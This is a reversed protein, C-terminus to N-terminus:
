FIGIFGGQRGIGGRMYRYSFYKDPLCHTCEDSKWINNAPVGLGMAQLRNAESLDVHFKDGKSRFYAGEGTAKGVSRCVDGDVEYCCQGICPGIAMQIDHPDSNFTDTMMIVTKKLIEQATGRWGAHVAAVINRVPDHVLVPVCDAVRVGILLGKEGTIVADAIVDEPSPGAIYISDTHKQIPLYIRDKPIDLHKVISDLDAGPYKATFFARVSGRLNEPEVIRFM